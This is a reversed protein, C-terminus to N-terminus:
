PSVWVHALSQPSVFRLQKPFVSWAWFPPWSDDHVVMALGAPEHAQDVREEQGQGMVWAEKWWWGCQRLEELLDGSIWWCVCFPEPRGAPEQDAHVAPACKSLCHLQFTCEVPVGAWLIPSIQRGQRSYTAHYCTLAKPKDSLNMEQM